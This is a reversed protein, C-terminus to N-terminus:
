GLARVQTLLGARRQAGYIRTYLGGSNMLEAHSGHEIVRGANLVVVLDAQPFAALRHSFVIVTAQEEPPAGPGFADRLATVIRSETSVDVSSFPEDLILLGPATSGSGIARALGIRQRQGGSVRVGLEGVQTEVGAPFTRIDSDLAALRVARELQGDRNKGTSAVFRVNEEVTGSFLNAEQPLYGILGQREASSLASVDRGDLLVCGAELPFIGCLARALASKGSGVPGTVAVFAGPPIEISVDRLSASQAGPYRFTVGRLSVSAPGGSRIAAAVPPKSTGAVHGASFSALRPEGRVQLAPALLPRLRSYAAAGSQVSNLLQPVRFGRNVFRFYLELFAVFSGLSMAGAVVRSGGQWVVLVIGATMITTYVPVLGARLRVLDLNAQAQAESLHAAGRVANENRGFLRLVRIGALAERISTTLRAAAARTSVTRTTVWRGSQHALVMAFPVPLLAFAALGPDYIFMVVVFSISFLVTDWMEITFERVGVGLVEVDGVIRAMVDGIPTRHLREMPWAIVGRFADARVNARIRGNATMLWWRKLVRPGETLLVGGLYAIAAWAVDAPAADGRDLALVKDVARGLLIAPLVVATNMVIGAVSGIILRGAVQRFYPRMDLLFRITTM